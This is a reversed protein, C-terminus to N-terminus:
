IDASIGKRKKFTFWVFFLTILTGIILTGFTLSRSLDVLELRGDGGSLALMEDRYRVVAGQALLWRSLMNISFATYLLAMLASFGQTLTRSGLHCAIIVAFTASIWFEFFRDQASLALYFLQVAEYLSLSNDVAMSNVM